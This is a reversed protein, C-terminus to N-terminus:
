LTLLWEMLKDIEAGTLLQHRGYPPMITNPNFRAPDEIQARLRAKDPYRQAIGALPPAINGSPTGAVLHCAQCVGKTRNVAICGGQTVVDPPPNVTDKCLKPDPAQGAARAAPATVLGVASSIGVVAIGVFLAARM